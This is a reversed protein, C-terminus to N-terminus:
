CVISDSGSSIKFYDYRFTVDIVAYEVDQVQSNLDIQGMSTPHANIFTYTASKNNHSNLVILSVDKFNLESNKTNGHMWDFIEKFVVLNEDVSIRVQLADYQLKDGPLFGSQNRFGAVVEPLSVSPINASVTFFEINAFRDGDIVLKFSVPSLLNINSTLAM